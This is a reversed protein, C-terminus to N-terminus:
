SDSYSDCKFSNHVTQSFPLPLTPNLPGMKVTEASLNGLSCAIYLLLMKSKFGRWSRQQMDRGKDAM